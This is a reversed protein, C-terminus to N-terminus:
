SNNAEVAIEREIFNQQTWKKPFPSTANIVSAYPFPKTKNELNRPLCM